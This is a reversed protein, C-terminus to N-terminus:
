TLMSLPGANKGGILSIKWIVKNSTRALYSSVPHCVIIFTQQSCCEFFNHLQSGDNKLGNEWKKQPDRVINVEAQTKIDM